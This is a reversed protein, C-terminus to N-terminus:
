AASQPTPAPAPADQLSGNLMETIVALCDAVDACNVPKGKNIQPNSVLITGDAQTKLAIQM